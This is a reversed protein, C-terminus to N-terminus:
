DFKIAFDKLSANRANREQTSKFKHISHDQMINKSETQLSLSIFTDKGAGSIARKLSASHRFKFGM